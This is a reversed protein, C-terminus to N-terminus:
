AAPPERRSPDDPSYLASQRMSTPAGAAKLAERDRLLQEILDDVAAGSPHSKILLLLNSPENHDRRGDAHHVEETRLLQRGLIEEMVMRHQLVCGDARASPHEPWRVKVYGARDLYGMKVGDVTQLERYEAGRNGIRVTRKAGSLFGSQRGSDAIGAVQYCASSCYHRESKEQRAKTVKVSKECVPNDCPKLVTGEGLNGADRRMPVGAARADAKCDKSCFRNAYSGPKPTFRQPCWECQVQNDHEREWRKPNASACARSCHFQKTKSREIEVPRRETTNSCTPNACPMAIAKKAAMLHGGRAADPM